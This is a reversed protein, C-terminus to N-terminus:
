KLTSRLLVGNAWYLGREAQRCSTTPTHEDYTERVASVVTAGDLLDGPQLTGLARGDATPHGPSARLERGDSLIIHVMEHGPPAPVHGTRVVPEAIREGTASETWVQDGVQLQSIPVDGNPTSILTEAALCIPCTAVTPQLKQVTIDGLADIYGSVLEGNDVGTKTELQFQYVAGAQVFHVAALRKHERYIALKDADSFGNQGTMNLHELIASFEEQNARIQPFAQIALQAENNRAVPYYDPDCYFFNPYAALLRYKLETPSPGAPTPIATSTPPQSTATAVLTPTASPVVTVVTPTPTASATATRTPSPLSTATSSATLTPTSAPTSGGGCGVALGGLVLM